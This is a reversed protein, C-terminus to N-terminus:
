SRFSMTIQQVLPPASPHPDHHPLVAYIGRTPPHVLALTTVDARLTTTLVGPILAIAHGTAVLAIKGPLDAANLDIRAIAGARAAHQRLLAASGENDEAWTEDALAEIPTRGSGALHHRAPLVVVMEDTGLFHRELRPDSPLGPPADTVIAMDLEGNAAREYLERTLGPVLNWPLPGTEDLLRRMAAPVVGAALSPTAGVALPRAPSGDRTERAARIAREAEKVAAQAHYRFAEGAATPRIGRAHREVLQTGIQRELGAIQRSVASQTYGLEAAAASLSGLRCVTVFTRWATLSM